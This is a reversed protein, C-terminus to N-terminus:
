LARRLICPSVVLVRELNTIRRSKLSTGVLMGLRIALDIGDRILDASADSSHLSVAVMPHLQAFAWRSRRLGM